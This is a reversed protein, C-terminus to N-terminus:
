EDLMNTLKNNLLNCWINTKPFRLELGLGLGLGLGLM